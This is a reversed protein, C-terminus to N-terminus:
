ARTLPLCKQLSAICFASKCTVRHNPRIKVMKELQARSHGGQRVFLIDADDPMRPLRQTVKLCDNIRVVSGDSTAYQGDALLRFIRVSPIVPLILRLEMESLEMLRPDPAYFHFAHKPVQPTKNSLSKLCDLCLRLPQWPTSDSDLDAGNVDILGGADLNVIWRGRCQDFAQLVGSQVGLLGVNRSITVRSGVALVGGQVGPHAGAVSESRVRVRVLLHV